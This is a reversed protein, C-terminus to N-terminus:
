AAAETAAIEKPESPPGKRDLMAIVMGVILLFAMTGWFIYLWWRPMPNDYERIGDYDHELLRDQEKDAVTM